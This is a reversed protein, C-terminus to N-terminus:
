WSLWLLIDFLSVRGTRHCCCGPPISLAMPEVQYTKNLRSTGIVFMTVAVLVILVVLVGLIIGIWKLVKRM